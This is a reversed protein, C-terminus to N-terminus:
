VGGLELIKKAIEVKDNELLLTLATKGDNNTISLDLDLDSIVDLLLLADSERYVNVLMMFPTEGNKNKITFDLDYDILDSLMKSAESSANAFLNHLITNGNIDPKNIDINYNLLEKFIVLEIYCNDVHNFRTALSCLLNLPTNYNDDVYSNIFRVDSLFLKTIREYNHKSIEGLISVKSIILAKVFYYFPSKGTITNITNLNQNYKLLTEIVDYQLNLSAIDIARLDRLSNNYGDYTVELDSNRLLYEDVIDSYGYLAADCLKIGYTLDNESLNLLMRVVEKNLTELAFDYAKKGINTEKNIDINSKLIEKLTNIYPSSYEKYKDINDKYTRLSILGDLVMHLVNKGDSPDVKDYKINFENLVEFVYYNGMVAARYYFMKNSDNRKNPNIGNDLLLRIINKIDNIHENPNRIDKILFLPTEEYNNTKFNIKTNSQKFLKIIISLLEYDCYKVLYHFITNGYNDSIDLIDRFNSLHNRILNYKDTLSKNQYYYSDLEYFLDNM